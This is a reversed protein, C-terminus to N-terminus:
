RIGEKTINGNMWHWWVRPKAGDPPSVFQGYISDVQAFAVFQMLVLVILLNLKKMPFYIRYSLKYFNSELVTM